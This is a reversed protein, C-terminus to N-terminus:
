RHFQGAGIWLRGTPQGVAEHVIRRKLLYALPRDGEEARLHSGVVILVANSQVVDPGM